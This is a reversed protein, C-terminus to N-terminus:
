EQVFCSLLHRSETREKRSTYVGIPRILNQFSGGAVTTIIIIEDDDVLNLTENESSQIVKDNVVLVFGAAM